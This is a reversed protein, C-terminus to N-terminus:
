LNILIGKSTKATAIAVTTKGVMAPRTMASSPDLNLSTKEEAKFIIAKMVTGAVTMKIISLTGSM